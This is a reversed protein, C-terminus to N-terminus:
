GNHIHYNGDAAGLSGTRRGEGSGQGQGVVVRTEKDSVTETEYFNKQTM